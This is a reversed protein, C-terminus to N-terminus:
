LAIAAEIGKSVAFKTASKGKQEASQVLEPDLVKIFLVLGFALLMSGAILELSRYVLAETYDAITGAGTIGLIPKLSDEMVTTVIGGLSSDSSSDKSKTTVSFSEPVQGPNAKVYTQVTSLAAGNWGGTWPSWDTGGKSVLYAARMNQAPNSLDLNGAGNAAATSRIIQMLGISPDGHQANIDYTNVANPDASTYPPGGSEHMAIATAQIAADGKFGADLAYQYVQGITLRNSAM